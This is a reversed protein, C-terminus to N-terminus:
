LRERTSDGTITAHELTHLLQDASRKFVALLLGERTGFHYQIVGWTVGARRAIQNSSARYFGEELICNVAADIVKAVTTTDERDRGKGKVVPKTRENGTM